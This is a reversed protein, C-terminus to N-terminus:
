LFKITTRKITTTRGSGSDVTDTPLKKVDGGLKAKANMARDNRNVLRFVAVKNGGRGRCSKDFKLKILLESVFFFYLSGGNGRKKGLTASLPLQRQVKGNPPAVQHIHQSAPTSYVPLPRERAYHASVPPLLVHLDTGKVTGEGPYTLFLTTLTSPDSM